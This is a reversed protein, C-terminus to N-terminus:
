CRDRLIERYGCAKVCNKAAVQNLHIQFNHLFIWYRKYVNLLLKYNFLRKMHKM